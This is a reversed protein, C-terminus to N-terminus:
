AGHRIRIDAVATIASDIHGAPKKVEKHDFRAVRRVAM